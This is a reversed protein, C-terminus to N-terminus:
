TLSIAFVPQLFLDSCFQKWQGKQVNQTSHWAKRALFHEKSRGLFSSHFKEDRYFKEITYMSSMRIKELLISPCQFCKFDKSHIILFFPKTRECLFIFKNWVLICNRPYLIFFIFGDRRNFSCNFKSIIKRTFYCIFFM